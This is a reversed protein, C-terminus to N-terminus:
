GLLELPHVLFERGGYLACKPHAATSLHVVTKASFLGSVM